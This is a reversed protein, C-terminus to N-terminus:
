ELPAEDEYGPPAPAIQYVTPPRGPGTTPGQSARVLGAEALEVLARRVRMQSWGLRTLLDEDAAALPERGKMEDFLAAASRSLGARRQLWDGYGAEGLDESPNMLARRALSLSRRPMGRGLRLIEDIRRESLRDLVGRRDLMERVSTDPLADLHV